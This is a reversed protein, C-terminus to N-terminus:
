QVFILAAGIAILMAGLIRFYAVSRQSWWEFMKESTRSTLIIIGKIMAFLGIIGIIKPIIGHLKLVSGLLSFGFVILFFFVVRRMKKTMRRGLFGKLMHPRATWLIGLLMWFVGAIKALM